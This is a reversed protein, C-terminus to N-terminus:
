GKLNLLGNMAKVASKLASNDDINTCEIKNKPLQYPTPRPIKRMFGIRNYHPVGTLKIAVDSEVSLEKWQHSTFASGNDCFMVDPIVPYM